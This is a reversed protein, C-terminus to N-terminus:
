RTAASRAFVTRNGHPITVAGAPAPPEVLAQRLQSKARALRSMVTGMPIELIDAIERYPRQEFYFLLVVLKFEECLSNIAAQLRESDISREVEDDPLENLDLETPSLPLRGRFSKAYCNRLITFLWARVCGSDRLQGCKQQATLFVQQTLDEADAVSGCLRYAYRYLVEHHDRVLQAVDLPPGPDAMNRAEM